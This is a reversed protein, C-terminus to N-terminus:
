GKKSIFKMEIKTGHPIAYNNFYNDPLSCIISSGEKQFCEKYQGNGVEDLTRMLWNYISDIFKAKTATSSLLEQKFPVVYTNTEGEVELDNIKINESDFEVTNM